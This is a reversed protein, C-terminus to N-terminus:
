ECEMDKFLVCDRLIRKRHSDDDYEDWRIFKYKDTIDGSIDYVRDGIQTAFHNDVVSYVIYANFDKFRQELIAAFWYCCGYLFTEIIKTNTGNSTFRNIFGIVESNRGSM